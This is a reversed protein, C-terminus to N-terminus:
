NWNTLPPTSKEVMVLRLKDDSVLVPGILRVHTIPSSIPTWHRERIAKELDFM